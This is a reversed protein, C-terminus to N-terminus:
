DGINLDGDIYVNGDKNVVFTDKEGNNIKILSDNDKGIHASAIM